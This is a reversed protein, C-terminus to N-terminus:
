GLGLFGHRAVEPLCKPNGREAFRMAAGHADDDVAARRTEGEPEFLDLVVEITASGAM